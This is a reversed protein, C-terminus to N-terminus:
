PGIEGILAGLGAGEYARHTLAATGRITPPSLHSVLRPVKEPVGDQRRKM